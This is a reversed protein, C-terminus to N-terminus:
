SAGVQQKKGCVRFGIRKAAAARHTSKVKYDKLAQSYLGQQGDIAAAQGVVALQQMQHTDRKYTDFDRQLEKPAKPSKLGREEGSARKNAASTARIAKAQGAQGKPRPNDAAVRKCVADAKSVFADKAKQKDDGCGAVLV